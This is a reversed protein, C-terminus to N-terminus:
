SRWESPSVGYSTKFARSFASLEKYGLRLAIETMSIDSQKLLTEAQEFRAKSLLESFSTGNEKLKLQFTRTKMGFQASVYGIHCRGSSLCSGIQATVTSIFDQDDAHYKSELYEKLLGNLLNDWAPLVIALHRSDFFVGEVEADFQLRCGLQREIGPVNNLRKGILTFVDPSWTNGTIRRFTSILTMAWALSAQPYRGAFEPPTARVIGATDGYVDLRYSLGKTRARLSNTIGRLADELTRCSQAFAIIEHGYGLEIRKKAVLIGFDSRDLLSAAEEMTEACLTFPVLANREGRLVEKIMSARSLNQIAGGMLRLQDLTCALHEMQVFAKMEAKDRNGAFASCWQMRTRGRCM